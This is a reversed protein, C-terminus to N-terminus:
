VWYSVRARYNRMVVLALAWGVITIGIAVLWSKGDIHQGILPARVIQVFHYLPNLEILPLAWSVNERGGGAYLQDIPWVIPTLYFLLQILSSILQPIDRYRTSIVGLMLTVWGANLALIAFGPVATLITWDIGPHCLGNGTTCAGEQVAYQQSLAPFYIAVIIVYVIVNHAAMLTQRWVTRLAYITLPAPMQKILGENSIFTQMGETICGSVFGWVIFGTVIYPLFVEIRLGFLQSYLLGLGLAIVGQTITLWFPGIVSRRYRQKIDQWGLHGWLETQRLGSRIDDFARKWSRSGPVPATDTTDANM